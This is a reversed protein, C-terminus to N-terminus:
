HYTRVCRAYFTNSEHEIWASLICNSAFTWTTSLTKVGKPCEAPRWRVQESQPYELVRSWLMLQWMLYFKLTRDNSFVEAQGLSAKHALGGVCLQM